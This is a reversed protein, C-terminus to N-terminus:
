PQKTLKPRFYEYTKSTELGKINSWEEMRQIAAESSGLATIFETEFTPLNDFSHHTVRRRSSTEFHLARLYVENVWKVWLTDAKHHINWLVRDLLSM